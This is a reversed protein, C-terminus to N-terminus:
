WVREFLNGRERILGGGKLSFYFLGGGKVSFYFLGRELLVGEM